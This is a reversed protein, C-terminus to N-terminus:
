SFAALLGAKVANIKGIIGNIKAHKAATNAGSANYPAIITIEKETRYSNVGTDTFAYHIEIIDYQATPDVLYETHIVNPYGMGRYQDGREGACFWELAALREGNGVTTLGGTVETVTGWKVDDGGTYITGPFVDFYIRRSLKNVATVDQKKETITLVAEAGSGSVAFALYPNTTSTAGDERSFALNLATVMKGFLAEATTDEATAHVAADKYYQDADGPAFFGKFNIGLVYDQGAVPTGDLSVKVQRLNYGNKSADIVEARTINDLPIFDASKIEIDGVDTLATKTVGDVYDKAVYLHRVQNVSFM